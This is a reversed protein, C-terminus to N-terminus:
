FYLARQGGMSRRPRARPPSHIIETEDDARPDSLSLSTFYITGPPSLESDPTFAILQRTRKRPDISCEEFRGGISEIDGDVSEVDMDPGVIGYDLIAGSPTPVSPSVLLQVTIIDGPQAGPSPRQNLNNSSFVLPPTRFVQFVSRMESLPARAFLKSRSTYVQDTVKEKWTDGRLMTMVEMSSISSRGTIERVELLLQSDYRYSQTKRRAGLTARVADTTQREGMMWSLVGTLPQPCAVIPRFTSGLMRMRQRTVQALISPVDGYIADISPHDTFPINRV